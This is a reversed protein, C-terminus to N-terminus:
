SAASNARAPLTRPLRALPPAAPRFPLARAPDGLQACAASAPGRVLYWREGVTEGAMQRPSGQFCPSLQSRPVLLERAPSADLWRAADRQEALPDLWRRHGFDVIPRDLYLLFQYKYDVLGLEADAPVQALAARMFAEGSRQPDIRPEIAFSFALACGALTAPWILIPRRLAAALAAAAAALPVCALRASSSLGLERTIALVRADALAHGLTFGATALVVLAALLAGLRIVGRRGILEPLLPASALAAAPLAPFVYLDRKGPSLSFFVVVLLVWALPLWPRADRRRWARLWGPVLWFFLASLPLWLPLIADTLFYYWPHRHHWADFYRTATERLLIGDRYAALHSDGSAAVEALMPAVWAAIALLMAAPAAAWRWGGRIPPLPQFGRARLYAYPLLALLPLFGVGKTIVGLGAALGSVFYWGWAPGLALHRLLGYLSLTTLLCLTADIQASRTQLVFQLSTLLLVACALAAARGCLRRALDYTLGVIGLAAALSPLLFTWRTSGTLWYLSALLWFYLPPKDDYLEGGMSPFLWSGHSAMERSVQVFGPEDAPWPHRLGVGSGILVLVGLALWLLDRRAVSSAGAHHLDAREQHAIARDHHLAPRELSPPAETMTCAHYVVGAGSFAL